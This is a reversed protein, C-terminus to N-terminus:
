SKHHEQTKRSFMKKIRAIFKSDYFKEYFYAKVQYPLGFPICRKMMVDSLDMYFRFPTITLVVKPLKGVKRKVKYKVVGDIEKGDVYIKAKPFDDTIKVKM